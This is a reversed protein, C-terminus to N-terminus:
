AGQAPREQGLSPSQTHWAPQTSIRKGGCQSCQLRLGAERVVMTEPLADVNENSKHGCAECTAIVSYVGDERMDALTMPNFNGNM